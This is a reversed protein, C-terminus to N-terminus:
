HGAKLPAVNVISVKWQMNDVALDLEGVIIRCSLCLHFAANIVAAEALGAVM